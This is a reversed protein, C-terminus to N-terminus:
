NKILWYKQQDM